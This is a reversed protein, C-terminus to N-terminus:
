VSLTMVAVAIKEGKVAMLLDLSALEIGLHLFVTM